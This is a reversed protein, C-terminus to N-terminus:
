KGPCERVVDLAISKKGYAKEFQVCFEAALKKAREDYAAKDPWTNRPNLVTPDSVGPCSRPVELHFIPDADCEVSALSGNLASEVIERTLSIDM